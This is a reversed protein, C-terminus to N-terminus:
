KLKDYLYDVIQRDVSCDFKRAFFFDSKEIEKLDKIKWIYPKGRKWDILRKCSEYNDDFGQWHLNKRFQSNYIITQIFIEDFNAVYRVKRINKEKSLLYEAFRDTISFWCSGTYFRVSCNKLRNVGFARQLNLLTIDIIRLPSFFNKTRIFRYYKIWSTNLEDMELSKFHVFEKGYCHHFYSHIEEPRKLPFDTGSILHLYEYEEKQNMAKKILFLECEIQSTHGWYIRIQKYIHLKSKLCKGVDSIQIKSKGDIHLFIDFYESDLIELQM